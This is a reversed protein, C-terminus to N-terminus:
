RARIRPPTQGDAFRANGSQEFAFVDNIGGFHQARQARPDLPDALPGPLDVPDAYRAKGFGAAGSSKPLEPVPQRSIIPATAPQGIVAM